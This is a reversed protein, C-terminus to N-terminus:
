EPENWGDLSGKYFNVKSHWSQESYYWNTVNGGSIKRPTGLLSEVQSMSMGTRLQRWLSRNKWKDSYQLKESSTKGIIKEIENVRRELESIRNELKKIEKTSQAYPVTVFFLLGFLAIPFWHSKHTM